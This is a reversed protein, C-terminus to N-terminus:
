IIMALRQYTKQIKEFLLEPLDLQEVETGSPLLRSKSGMYVGGMYTSGYFWDGKITAIISLAGSSLAPAIFPKYGFARIEKNANITKETLYNSIREDYNEISNAVILGQGHPGFVRGERLYSMSDKSKEAYFHTRSNMVGLGYGIVQEPFLGMSDYSGTENKNSELFVVKSLLDVPDSVVAFIGKFNSKRAMKAYQSIISSNAEYQAMRVDQTKSDIPPIGKSACFVFMDCSFIEDGKLAKVPPPLIEGFPERIQNLEYEWRKLRNINRDYIGIEDVNEGGMLRLGIALTSGVDGLALINVKWKDKKKIEILEKWKPYNTNVSKIKRGRIKELIWNPTNCDTDDKKLMLLNLGEEEMHLMSDHSLAFSGRSKLNPMKNLYYIFGNHNKVEEEGITELESYQHFSFLLRDKLKYYKFKNKV